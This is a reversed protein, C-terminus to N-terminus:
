PIKLTVCDLDSSSDERGGHHPGKKHRNTPSSLTDVPNPLNPMTLTGGLLTLRPNIRDARM